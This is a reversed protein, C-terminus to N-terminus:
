DEDVDVLWGPSSRDAQAPDDSERPEVDAGGARVTSRPHLRVSGPVPTSVTIYRSPRTGAFVGAGLEFRTEPWEEGPAPAVADAPAGHGPRRLEQREVFQQTVAQIATVRGRVRDVFEHEHHSEVADVTAAIEAGLTDILWEDAGRHEIGFDVRDSVAFPEGCCSWEWNTLWVRTM